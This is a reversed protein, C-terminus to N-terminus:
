DKGIGAAAAKPVTTSGLAVQLETAEAIRNATDVLMKREIFQRDPIRLGLQVKQGASAPVRYVLETIVKTEPGDLLLPMQFEIERPIEANKVATGEARASVQVDYAFKVSGSLDDNISKFEGASSLVLTRAIELLDAPAHSVVYRLIDRLKLAFEDQPLLRGDFATLLQYEISPTVIFAASHQSYRSTEAYPFDLYATALVGGKAFALEPSVFVRSAGDKHHNVYEVFDDFRHLSTVGATFLPKTLYKALSQVAYGDPVAVLPVDIAEHAVNKVGLGLRALIRHLIDTM